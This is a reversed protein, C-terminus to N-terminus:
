QQKWYKSNLAPNIPITDLNHTLCRMPRLQMETNMPCLMLFWPPHNTGAATTLTPIILWPLTALMAFSYWSKIKEYIEKMCAVNILKISQNKMFENSWNKDRLKSQNLRLIPSLQLTQSTHILTIITIHQPIYWRFEILTRNKTSKQNFDFFGYIIQLAAIFITKSSQNKRKSM